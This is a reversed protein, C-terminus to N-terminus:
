SDMLPRKQTDVSPVVEILEGLARAHAVRLADVAEVSVDPTVGTGEWNTGSLAMRVQGNPVTVSLRTNIPYPRGPNAAGATHEGVVEARDQEQM